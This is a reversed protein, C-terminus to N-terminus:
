QDIISELTLAARDLGWLETVFSSYNGVVIEYLAVTFRQRQQGIRWAAYVIWSFASFVMEGAHEMLSHRGIWATLATIMSVIM